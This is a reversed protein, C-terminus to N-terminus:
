VNSLCALKKYLVKWSSDKWYKVVRVVGGFQEILETVSSGTKERKFVSRIITSFCINLTWFLTQILLQKLTTWAHSRLWTVSAFFLKYGKNNSM